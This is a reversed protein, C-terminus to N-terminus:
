NLFFRSTGDYIHRCHLVGKMTLIVDNKEFVHWLRSRNTAFLNKISFMFISSNFHSTVNFISFHRLADM